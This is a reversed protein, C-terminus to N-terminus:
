IIQLKKMSERIKFPHQHIEEHAYKSNDFSQEELTTRNMESYGISGFKLYLPRDAAAFGTGWAKVRTYGRIPGSLPSIRFLRLDEMFNITYM